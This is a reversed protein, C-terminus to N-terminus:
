ISSFAVESLYMLWFICISLLPICTGMNPDELAKGSVHCEFLTVAYDTRNTITVLKVFALGELSMSYFRM